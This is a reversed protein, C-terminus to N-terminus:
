PALGVSIFSINFFHFAFTELTAATTGVLESNILIMGIVGGIMCSPFLYTQFVSVKARLFVGSLILVSLFGFDLLSQFPSHM